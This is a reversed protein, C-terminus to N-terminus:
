QPNSLDGCNHIQFKKLVTLAKKVKTLFNMSSPIHFYHPHQSWIKGIKEDILHAEEATELRIPNSNNYGRAVSPCGMHLILSYKKFEQIRSTQLEKFFSKETGPWYALGDLTGRDCYGVQWRAESKVLLEQEKQISFIARQACTKSSNSPLRWFGGKFLISASEPLIISHTCLTKGLIDLLATKGAGPGGTIVILKM